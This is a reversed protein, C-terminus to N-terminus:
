NWVKKNVRSKNYFEIKVDGCVPVSIPHSVPMMLSTKEKKVGDFVASTYSRVDAQHVEFYPASLVTSTLDTLPVTLNLKTLEDNCKIGFLSAM